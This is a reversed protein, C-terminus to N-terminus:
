RPVKLRARAAEFVRAAQPNHEYLFRRTGTEDRNFITHKERIPHGCQGGAYPYGATIVCTGSLKCLRCCGDGSIGEILNEPDMSQLSARWATEADSDHKHALEYAEHNMDIELQLAAFKNPIAALAAQADADGLASARALEAAGTRLGDREAELKKRHARVAKATPVPPDLPVIDPREMVDNMGRGADPDRRLPNQPDPGCATAQGSRGAGSAEGAVGAGAPSCSTGTEVHLDSRQTNATDDRQKTNDFDELACNENEEDAVPRLSIKLVRCLREITVAGPLKKGNVIKNVYGDALDAQQDVQLHTLGLAAIRERFFVAWDASSRILHETM